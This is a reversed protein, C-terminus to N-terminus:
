AVPKYVGGEIKILGAMGARKALKSVQGKSIGMEDALDRCSGLGDGVLEVLVDLQDMRDHRVTTRGHEDSRFTWKWPGAGVHDGERNKTFRTIFQAGEVNEDGGPPSLGIVWTAADERRSTGRPHKPNRGAHTVIAVAVKRRRLDLLWPLVREWSDAENEALGSFLCSLNDLFLVDIAHEVCKDTLARQVVPDTLNLGGGTRNFQHQHSLLYFPATDSTRLSRDRDRLGDLPMEGDAYLVRRPKTITWPGCDRGEALCRALNYAFWTKGLGRPGFIFGLGEAKWWDGVLPERHPIHLTDLEEASLIALDVRALTMGRAFTMGEAKAQEPSIIDPLPNM